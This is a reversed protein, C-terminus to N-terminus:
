KDLENLFEEITLKVGLGAAYERRAEAVGEVFEARRREAL